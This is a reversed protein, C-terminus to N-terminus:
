KAYGQDVGGGSATFTIINQDDSPTLIYTDNSALGHKAVPTVTIVGATVSLSAIGHVARTIGPPIGESGADCDKFAGSTNFCTVVAAKYPSTARVLESFYAKRTYNIYTPVAIAAIIGVIAVAIMLELLTFGTQSKFTLM